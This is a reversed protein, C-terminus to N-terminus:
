SRCAATGLEARTVVLPAVVKRSYTGTTSAPRYRAAALPPLSGVPVSGRTTVSAVSLENWTRPGVTLTGAPECSTTKFRPVPLLLRYEPVLMRVTVLMPAARCDIVNVGVVTQGASEGPWRKKM